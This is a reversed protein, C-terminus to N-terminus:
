KLMGNLMETVADINKEDEIIITCERGSPSQADALVLEVESNAWRYVRNEDREDLVFKDGHLQKMREIVRADCYKLNFNINTLRGKLFHFYIPGNKVQMGDFVGDVDTRYFVRYYDPYMLGGEEPKMGSNEVIDLPSGLSIGAYGSPVNHFKSSNYYMGAWFAAFVAVIGTAIVRKDNIKV